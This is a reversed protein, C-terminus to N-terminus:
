QVSLSSRSLSRVRMGVDDMLDAGGGVAGTGGNPNQGPFRFTSQGGLMAGRQQQLTTAFSSYKLLDSDSVSRRAESMAYEFHTKTIEPVDDNEEEEDFERGEAEAARRREMDAEISERIAYKAARQCVETIDAGSFKDMTEALFDLPVDKSVPSKRLAAKLISKRSEPDPMPIYILQDLRGPRMLAADIIDPRNTAGIIFVNKKAGMGDMETLLQNMVRDGAGGADGISSGRSKAISDLEDFFLVCPAAQRAKEFVERVNAESEGFWMTLLEPGKISIFNAQCENAVAKALLTKGCGPPGYFLVGKSPSMGFKEYKEPHEVPYQVLERLERKVDVLGGIDDWSINPVEVVTERLSSPNSQALAYRFHEQRVALSALVEADINDDEIDILDMKERICQMAAETCLAAIDAGVFGHTERAIEEPDVDDALQLPM